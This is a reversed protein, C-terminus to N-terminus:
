RNTSHAGVHGCRETKLHRSKQSPREYIWCFPPCKGATQPETQSLRCTWLTCLVLKISRSVCKGQFRSWTPDYQLDSKREHANQTTDSHLARDSPSPEHDMRHEHFSVIFLKLSPSEASLEVMQYLCGRGVAAASRPVRTLERAFRRAENTPERRLQNVNSTLLM